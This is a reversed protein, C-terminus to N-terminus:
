VHARGIEIEVDITKLGLRVRLEKFYNPETKEGETVILFKPEKFSNTPLNKILKECQPWFVIASKTM